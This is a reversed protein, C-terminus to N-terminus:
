GRATGYRELYRRVRLKRATNVSSMYRVTGFIPREPGWPRDYRGLVWFIGSYSNPDRGDLAYRNNLEIMVELARQPNPSWELIKKGWLMRLYGHVRGERLLQRQAANWLEDHTEARELRGRDYIHPRLDAGHKELTARAWDPLSEYRENATNRSSMNFGLERWTVLEDLFSEASPRMGWWGSRKGSARPSLSDPSWGERRALASFIEHVSIHGFHLYPSLGSTVDADPDNREDGYRELREELFGRLVRKAAVSGGSQGTPEVSHDIPLKPILGKGTLEPLRTRRWRAAERPLSRLRPLSRRAMPSRLPPELIHDLLNQQLFRRFAYATPFIRDAARLPLLGNTDISEMRVPVSAAGAETMRPIGFCPFDDTVVVCAESALAPLLGRGAGPADEVYPFYATGTRALARANDAMGDLIFRHLRDSAYPYSAGLAEFVLLPKGLEQAWDAARQLAFNWGIRRCAVMWYVVYRGDDRPPARNLDRVRQTPFSRM